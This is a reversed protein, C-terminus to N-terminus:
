EGKAEAISARQMLDMAAANVPQKALVADASQLAETPRGSALWATGLKVLNEGDEPKLECVAAFAWVATEMRGLEMAAAGFLMLAAVSTPDSALWREAVRWREEPLGNQARVRGRLAAVCGIGMRVWASRGRFRKLQAIRQLRRVAVCNPAEVLVQACAEIAYDLNGRELAVRANEVLKQCRADLAVDDIEAM